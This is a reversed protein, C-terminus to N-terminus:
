TTSEIKSVFDKAFWDLFEQPTFNYYNDPSHTGIQEGVLLCVSHWDLNKSKSPLSTKLSPLYSEKMYSEFSQHPVMNGYTRLYNWLAKMDEITFEQKM